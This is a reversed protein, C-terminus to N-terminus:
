QALVVSDINTFVREQGSGAEVATVVTRNRVSVVLALDDMLVLSDRAGKAAAKDVAGELRQMDNTSLRLGREALRDQAHKSFRLAAVKLVQQFSAASAVPEAVRRPQRTAQQPESTRVALDDSVPRVV